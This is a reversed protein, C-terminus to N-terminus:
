LYEILGRLSEVISQERISERNGSFSFHKSVVPQGVKLWAIWVTGVPKDKSGGAPGAIGSIAVALDANALRLAGAAMAEVVSRSVAGNDKLLDFSVNLWEQKAQNSYTILGHSFWQSSGAVDTIAKAVGGGTCSEATTVYLGNTLLLQGLQHSLENIVNM